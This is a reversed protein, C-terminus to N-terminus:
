CSALLDMLKQIKRREELVLRHAEELGIAKFRIRDGPKTQGVRGIETSIATAIKAYGGVTQEVLLLIPQGDPPVQIGGSVTPESIISKEVRDKHHIVPGELRYGMRDAKSSVKFESDLFTKIGDSFYDDQPGMIVRITPTNSYLPIFESPLHQNPRGYAKGKPIIDGAVLPRGDIGGINGGVYTSRSGMVLPLDVGGGVAIYARCGNKPGKFTLKDGRKVAVSEWLPLLSDNLHSSLDAGTIAIVGDEIINLVPGFVTVELVAQDVGNGVLLNSVSYAFADVAGCRPIGFQLYGFRGRDQITSYLGPQIVEFMEM